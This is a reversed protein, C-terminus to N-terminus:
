ENAYDEYLTRFNVRGLSTKVEKICQKQLQPLTKGDIGSLSAVIHLAMSVEVALKFLTKSIHAENQRLRKDLEGFIAASIYNEAGSAAVYESYFEAAKTLYESRTKSDTAELQSDIKALLSPTLWINTRQKNETKLHSKEEM